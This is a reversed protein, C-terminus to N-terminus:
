MTNYYNVLVPSHILIYVQYKFLTHSVYQAFGRMNTLLHDVNKLVVLQM